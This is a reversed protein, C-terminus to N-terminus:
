AERRRFRFPRTLSELLDTLDGGRTSGFERRVRLLGLVGIFFVMVNPSWMAVAPSVFGRDALAEGGVLGVYFVAFISLGGGIVLGMGGRPFRLALAVGILVFTFCAVSIAYKKHIEVLFKNASVLSSQQDQRNSLTETLSILVPTTSIDVAQNRATTDALVVPQQIPPQQAAPPQVPPQQAPAPPPTPQQAQITEPLLLKGIAREVERWRGCHSVKTTDGIQPVDGTQYVRMLSRLDQSALNRRTAGARLARRRNSSVQDMMECTTMERDGRHFNVTDREFLNQVNRVRITNQAFRTIQLKAPETLKYEHVKGHYLQLVLDVGSEDFAMTGSDAYVVRRGDIMSVDFIEVDRLRGSGPLVRGARISYPHLTNIAQERMQFAPKKQSIDTQLNGLRANTRPLVQDVFLFNVLALVFGGVLAPRLMQMVSVGSARMATIENDQGLQSYGYLIAVLVAMPLTLAIIFPISLALVEVIVQWPLDKGVLDGFRKALQNVLLLGTCAGLSFLFPGTVSRRIYGRLLRM